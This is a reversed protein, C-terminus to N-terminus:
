NSLPLWLSGDSFELNGNMFRIKGASSADAAEASDGVRVAGHSYIEAGEIEETISLNGDVMLHGSVLGGEVSLFHDALFEFDINLTNDDLTVGSGYEPLEGALAFDSANFGGLTTADVPDTLIEVVAAELEEVRGTLNLITAQQAVVIETLEALEDALSPVGGRQQADATNQNNWAAGCFTTITVALVFAATIFRQMSM